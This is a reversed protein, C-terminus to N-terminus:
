LKYVIADGDSIIDYGNTVLKDNEKLGGLVEVKGNYEKGLTIICKRATNGEAVYVYSANNEDSQITRIPITIMPAASQYDNINLRAVM